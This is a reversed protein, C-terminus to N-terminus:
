DQNCKNVAYIVTGIGSALSAVSTMVAIFMKCKHEGRVVEFDSKTRRLEQQLGEIVERHIDSSRRQDKIPRLDFAIGLPDSEKPLDSCFISVPFLLLFLRKM